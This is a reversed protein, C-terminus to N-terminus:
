RINGITNRVTSTETTGAGGTSPSPEPETSTAPPSTTETGAVTAQGAELDPPMAPDAGPTGPGTTSGAGSAPATGTPPTSSDSTEAM